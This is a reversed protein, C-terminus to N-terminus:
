HQDAMVTRYINKLQVNQLGINFKNWVSQAAQQPLEPPSDIAATMKKVYGPIDKESVLFGTHGDEILEPIGSHFTSVVVLGMAMAEMLVTPIGEQDGNEATVSHHLFVDSNEMLEIVQEKAVKGTFRVKDRIGLEDCLHRISQQLPGEGALTLTSAPHHALFDRFAQVTYRHGKKEVFNSVQLFKIQESNRRKERLPTRSIFRFDEVPVGIYHVQTRDPRAGFEQLRDAMVQSVTIIHAYEFLERLGRLYTPDHLLSSADYGHFTVLLPLNLFKALPLMELGAPGFHAHILRAGNERLIRKWYNNQLPSLAAHKQTLTRVMRCYAREPLSKERSYISAFPFLDLNDVSGALVIPDFEDAVGLLQRYIFTMSVTLYHRPYVAVVHNRPFAM